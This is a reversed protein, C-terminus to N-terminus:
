KKYSSIRKKLNAFRNNGAGSMPTKEDSSMAQNMITHGSDTGAEVSGGQNYKRSNALAAAVAQNQPHGSAIMERINQSITEKSKGPKLPM